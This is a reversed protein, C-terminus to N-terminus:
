GAKRLATRAGVAIGPEFDIRTVRQEGVLTAFLDAAPGALWVGFADPNDWCLSLEWRQVNRPSRNALISVCGRAHRTAEVMRSLYVGVARSDRPWAYIVARHSILPQYTM